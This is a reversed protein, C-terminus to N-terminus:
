GLRKRRERQERHDHAGDNWRAIHERRLLIAAEDLDNAARPMVSLVDEEVLVSTLDDVGVGDLLALM